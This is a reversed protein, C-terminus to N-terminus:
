LPRRNNFVLRSEDHIIAKKLISSPRSAEGIISKRGKGRFLYYQRTEKFKPSLSVFEAEQM